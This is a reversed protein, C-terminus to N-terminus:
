GTRTALTSGVTPSLTVNPPDFEREESFVEEKRLDKIKTASVMKLSNSGIFRARSSARKLWALWEQSSIRVINTLNKKGPRPRELITLHGLRRAEHMTTQVTTHGVGAKAAIADVALDCSGHDMIEFGVVCLVARQGETYHSLLDDPLAGQGGLRRRRDRSAKRDPSRPRQRSVFRRHVSGNVRGNIRGVQVAQGPTNHRGLPRRRQIFNALYSAEADSIAGAYNGQWVLRSAEDLQHVDCAANIVYYLAQGDPSLSQDTIQNTLEDSVSMM